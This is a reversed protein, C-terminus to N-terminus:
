SITVSVRRIMLMPIQTCAHISPHLDPSRRHVAVQEAAVGGDESARCLAGGGDEAIQVTSWGKGYHEVAGRSKVVVNQEDHKARLASERCLRRSVFNCRLIM